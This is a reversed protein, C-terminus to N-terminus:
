ESGADDCEPTTIECSEIAPLVFSPAYAVCHQGGIGTDNTAVLKGEKDYLYTRASDIGVSVVADYDGCRVAYYPTQSRNFCAAIRPEIEARTCFSNKGRCRSTSRTCTPEASSGADVQSEWAAEPCDQVCGCAPAEGAECIGDGCKGSVCAYVRLPPHDCIKATGDGFVYGPKGYSVEKLGSCCPRYSGEKGSEYRGPGRCESSSGSGAAPGRGAEDQASGSGSRGAAQGGQTQESEPRSSACSLGVLSFALGLARLTAVSQSNM